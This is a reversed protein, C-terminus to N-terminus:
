FLCDLFGKNFFELVTEKMRAHYEPTQMQTMTKEQNSSTFDDLSIADLDPIKDPHFTVAPMLWMCIGLGYLAKKQLQSRIGNLEYNFMIPNRDYQGTLKQATEYFSLTYDMVLQDFYKERVAYETSTYLFHLIDIAPSSYRMTQLDVLKVNHCNNAADYKFLLNNIWLDGHCLVAWEDDTDIVCDFMIQFLKGTLCDIKQIPKDLDGNVNSKRLSYLAEKLSSELSHTYFEIASLSYVFENLHQQVSWFTNPDCQKLARSTAHM